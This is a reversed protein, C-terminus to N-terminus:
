RIVFSVDRRFNNNQPSEFSPLHREIMHIVKGLIEIYFTGGVFTDKAMMSCGLLCSLEAKWPSNILSWRGSQRPIMSARFSPQSAPTAM